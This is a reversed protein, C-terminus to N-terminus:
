SGCTGIEPGNCTKTPGPVNVINNNINTNVNKNRNGVLIGTIVGAGILAAAVWIRGHGDKHPPKEYAPVRPSPPIRKTMTPPPTLTYVAKASCATTDVDEGSLTKASVM